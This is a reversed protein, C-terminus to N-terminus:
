ALEAGLCMRTAIRGSLRIEARMSSTRRTSSLCACDPAFQRALAVPHDAAFRHLAPYPAERNRQALCRRAREGPGGRERGGPPRDCKCATSVIGYDKGQLKGHRRSGEAFGLRGSSLIADSCGLIGGMVPVSVGRPDTGSVQRDELLEGVAVLHGDPEDEVRDEAEAQCFHGVGRLPDGAVLALLLLLSGVVGHGDLFRSPDVGLAHAAGRAEAVAPKRDLIRRTARRPRGAAPTGRRNGDRDGRRRQRGARQRWFARQDARFGAMRRGACCTARM